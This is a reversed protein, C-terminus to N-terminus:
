ACALIEELQIVKAKKNYVFSRYNEEKPIQMNLAPLHARILEGEKVGIDDDIKDKETEQSYYLVDFSINLGKDRAAALVQYKNCKDRNEIAIIHSAIRHLLDRSKGIYVLQSGISISYCGAGKYKAAVGEIKKLEEKKQNIKDKIDM